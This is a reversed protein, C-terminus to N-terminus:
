TSNLLAIVRSHQSCRTGSGSSNTISRPYSRATITPSHDMRILPHTLRRPTSTTMWNGRRMIATSGSRMTMDRLHEGTTQVRFEAHTLELTELYTANMDHLFGKVETQLITAEIAMSFYAKPFVDDKASISNGKNLKHLIGQTKSYFSLFSDRDECKSLLLSSWNKM